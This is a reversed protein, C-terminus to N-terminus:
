YFSIHKEPAEQEASKLKTKKNLNIDYLFFTLLSGDYETFLLQNNDTIRVKYVSNSIKILNKGDYDSIYLAINDESNLTKDNNTDENVVAYINKDCYIDKGTKEEAFKYKYIFINSDFLKSEEYSIDKIFIFNTIGENHTKGSFSLSSKLSSASIDDYLGDAKIKSSKLNFIFVDKLKKNFEIYERIEEKTDDEVITVANSVTHSGSFPNFINIMIIAWTIIGLILFIFILVFDIKKILEFSIKKM